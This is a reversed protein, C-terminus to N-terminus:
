EGHAGGTPFVRHPIQEDVILDDQPRQGFMVILDEQPRQGFSLAHDVGHM